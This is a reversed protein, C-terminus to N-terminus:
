LLRVSDVATRRIRQLCNPAAPEIGIVERLAFLEVKASAVTVPVCLKNTAARAYDGLVQTSIVVNDSARGSRGSGAGDSAKRATTIM